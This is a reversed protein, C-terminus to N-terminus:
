RAPGDSAGPRASGARAPARVALALGWCAAWSTVVMAPIGLESGDLAGAVVASVVGCTALGTLAGGAWAGLRGGRGAGAASARRRAAEGLVVWGPATLALASVALVLVILAIDAASFEVPGALVTANQM